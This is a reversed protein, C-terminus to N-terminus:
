YPKSAKAFIHWESNLSHMPFRRQVYQHDECLSRIMMDGVPEYDERIHATKVGDFGSKNIRDKLQEIESMKNEM